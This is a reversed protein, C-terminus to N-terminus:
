LNNLLKRPTLLKSNWQLTEINLHRKCHCNQCVVELNILDNNNHNGDKHHVVLMYKRTEGCDVCGKEFDVYNRYSYKGNNYHNPQIEIIGSILRQAQDKHERCCFYLGSRSNKLSSPTKYFVKDCYSCKVKIKM